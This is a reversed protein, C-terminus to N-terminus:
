HVFAHIFSHIFWHTHAYMLSHIFWDILWGILWYIFSHIFLYTFFLNVYHYICQMKHSLVQKSLPLPQVELGYIMFETLLKEHCRIAEGKCWAKFDMQCKGEDNRTFKFHHFKLLNHVPFMYPILWERFAFVQDMEAYQIRAGEETMEGQKQRYCVRLLRLLDQYTLCGSRQVAVSLRSFMQDVDVHTHGKPLFCVEIQFFIVVIM